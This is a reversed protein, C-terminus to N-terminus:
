KSPDTTLKRTKGTTPVKKAATIPAKKTVSPAAANTKTQHNPRSTTKQSELLSIKMSLLQTDTGELVDQLRAGKFILFTPLHTIPGVSEAINPHQDVNVSAFVTTQRKREALMGVTPIM